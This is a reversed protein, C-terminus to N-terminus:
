AGNACKGTGLLQSHAVDHQVRSLKLPLAFLPSYTDVMNVGEYNRLPFQDANDAFCSLTQYVDVDHNKVCHCRSCFQNAKFNHLGGMREYVWKLDGAAFTYALKYGHRGWPWRYSQLEQFSAVVHAICDNYTNPGEHHESWIALPFYRLLPSNTNALESSWALVSIVGCESNRYAQVEDGYVGVGTLRGRHEWSRCPHDGFWECNAEVHNWYERVEQESRRGFLAHRFVDEGQRWLELCLDHPLIMPLMQESEELTAPDILRVPRHVIKADFYGSLSRFLTHADRECNSANSGHTGIRSVRAVLDDNSVHGGNRTLWSM